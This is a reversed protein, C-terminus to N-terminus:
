NQTEVKTGEIGKGPIDKKFKLELESYKLELNAVLQKQEELLTENFQRQDEALKAISLEQDAKAELLSAEARIREAEALPNQAQELAAKQQEALSLLQENQAQLTEAPIAPDNFFDNTKPLGMSKVIKALSNYIKKDDTLLSGSEKLQQHIQLLAAMNTVTTEDDGAALGVTSVLHHNMKWKRPDVTLPKGLVSIEKSSDQFHSVMWALGEYLERYGTEAMNRAVLEVKAEGQQQVGVFRTATENFLQDSDLGQNALYTGTTQARKTDM